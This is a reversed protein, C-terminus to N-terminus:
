CSKLFETCLNVWSANKNLYPAVECIEETCVSMAHGGEPYVHLECKVGNEVLAKAYLLSNVPSVVNDEATTWLFTPPTNKTVRKDLSLARMLLTKEDEGYSHLLNEFTRMHGDPNIVPYCLVCAAPRVDAGVKKGAIDYENSIDAALHGGASFGMVYIKKKDVLLSEANNKVYAIAAGVEFLQEPYRVGDPMCLYDLVFTQLGKAVFTDAAAEGERRSTYEYAGGPLIILAPRLFKVNESEDHPNEMITASATGGKVDFYDKLNIKLTKVCINRWLLNEYFVTGCGGRFTLEKKVEAM